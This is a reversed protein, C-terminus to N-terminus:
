FYLGAAKQSQKKTEVSIELIVSPAEHFAFLRIFIKVNMYNAYLIPTSEKLRGFKNKIRKKFQNLKLKLLPILESFSDFYYKLSVLSIEIKLFTLLFKACNKETKNNNNSNCRKM